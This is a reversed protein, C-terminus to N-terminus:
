KVPANIQKTFLPLNEEEDDYLLLKKQASYLFLSPYKRPRFKPLFENNIDRLLIVNKKNMLGNGYRAMFPTVKEPADLTILYVAAKSFEKFHQNIYGIAHQCHECETDFFVFFIMKGKELQQQTFSSKDSKFFKFDPITAAPTQASVKAAVV